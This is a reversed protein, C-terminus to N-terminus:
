KLAGQHAQDERVGKDRPEARDRRVDMGVAALCEHHGDSALQDRRSLEVGERLIQRQQMGHADLHHQHMSEPGLDFLLQQGLALSRSEAM